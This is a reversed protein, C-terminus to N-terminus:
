GAAKTSASAYCGDRHIFVYTPPPPFFFFPTKQIVSTIMLHTAELIRFKQVQSGNRRQIREYVPHHSLAAGHSYDSGGVRQESVPDRDFAYM